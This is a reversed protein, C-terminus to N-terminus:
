VKIVSDDINVFLRGYIYLEKLVSSQSLFAQSILATGHVRINLNSSNSISSNIL